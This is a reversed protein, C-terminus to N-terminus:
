RLTMVSDYRVYHENFTDYVTITISVAPASM